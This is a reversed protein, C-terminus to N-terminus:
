GVRPLLLWENFLLQPFVGSALLVIALAVLAVKERPLADRLIISRRLPGFFVRYFIHLITYAQVSVASIYFLLLAPHHAMGGHVVLDESAFDATGPAGVAAMGFLLFFTALVPVRAVLGSHQDLDVGGVRSRLAAGVLGLGTLALGTIAWMILGGLHGIEDADLIGMLVLSQVSITFLAIARALERQVLALGAAAIAALPLVFALPEAIPGDFGQPIHAIVAIASMPAVIAVGVSSASETYARVVWSHFPFTGLRVVVAFVLLADGVAGGVITGTLGAAAAVALYPKALQRVPGPKLASWILLSSLLWLGGVAPGPPSVAIAADCLMLAVLSATVRASAHRKPMVLFVAALGLGVIAIRPISAADLHLAPVDQPYNLLATATALVAFGAAVGFGRADPRYAALWGAAVVLAVLTLVLLNVDLTM